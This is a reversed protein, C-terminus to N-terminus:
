REVDHGAAIWADIGGQLPRVRQFGLQKLAQAVKVASAENPCACYVIVDGDTSLGALSETIKNMDIPLAGPIRGSAAQTLQSRVDLITASIEKGMMEWLEDVSIRDMRLQLIFQRRRWWKSAIYAALALVLLALGYGGLSSLTDLIDAIAERFLLGLGIAVGVWLAAGVADFLVFKWYRLGVAGAMATAVSAFGPVFKAFLMSAPGYRVFIQETQSVCTDPSLSIRCLTRLVRLGFHRGTFYWFTDAIVAAAVGTGLLALVARVDGGLYAGAVILTPYAPVPLGAQEVLVNLFVLGLGFELILSILRNM